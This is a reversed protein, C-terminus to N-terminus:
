GPSRSEVVRASHSSGGPRCYNPDLHLSHADERSANPRPAGIASGTERRAHKEGGTEQHQRQLRQRLLEFPCSNMLSMAGVGRQFCATLRRCSEKTLPSAVAAVSGLEKASNNALAPKLM